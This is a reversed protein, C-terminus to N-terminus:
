AMVGIGPQDPIEIMIFCREFESVGVSIKMAVGTVTLGPLFGTVFVPLTDIAVAPIINVLSLETVGTVPAMGFLSEADYINTLDGLMLHRPLLVHVTILM